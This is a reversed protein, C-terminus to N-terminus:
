ELASEKSQSAEVVEMLGFWDVPVEQESRRKWNAESFAQCSSQQCQRSSSRLARASGLV